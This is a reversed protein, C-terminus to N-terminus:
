YLRYALVGSRGWGPFRGRDGGGTPGALEIVQFQSVAGHPAGAYSAARTERCELRAGADSGTLRCDDTFCSDVVRRAAVWSCGLRSEASVDGTGSRELSNHPKSGAGSISGLVQRHRVEKLSSCCCTGARSTRFGPSDDAESLLTICAVPQHKTVLGHGCRLLRRDAARTPGGVVPLQARRGSADAEALAGSQYMWVYKAGDVVNNRYDLDDAIGATWVTSSYM